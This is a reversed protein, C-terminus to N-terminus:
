RAIQRPQLDIMGNYLRRVAEYDPDGPAVVDGRLAARLPSALDEDLM